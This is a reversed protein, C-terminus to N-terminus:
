QRGGNEVMQWLATVEPSPELDLEDLAQRWRAVQRRALDRRGRALYSLVLARHATEDAPEVALLRALYFAAERSGTQAALRRLVDEYLLEL